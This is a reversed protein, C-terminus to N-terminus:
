PFQSGGRLQQYVCSYCSSRATGPRVGCSLKVQASVRPSPSRLSDGGDPSGVPTDLAPPQCTVRYMTRLIWTRRRPVSDRIWPPGPPDNITRKSRLFHNKAKPTGLCSRSMRYAAEVEFCVCSMRVRPIKRVGSLPLGRIVCSICLIQLLDVFGQTISNCVELFSVWWWYEM